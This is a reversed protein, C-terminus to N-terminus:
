PQAMLKTTKIMLIATEQPRLILSESKLQTGSFLAPDYPKASSFSMLTESEGSRRILYIDVNRVAFADYTIIWHDALRGNPDSVNRLAVSSWIDSYPEFGQVTKMFSSDFGGTQFETVMDALSHGKGMHYALQKDLNLHSKGATLPVADPTAAQVINIGGIWVALMLFRALNCVIKRFKNSFDFIVM